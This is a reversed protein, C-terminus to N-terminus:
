ADNRSAVLNDSAQQPIGVVFFRKQDSERNAGMVIQNGRAHSIVSGRASSSM